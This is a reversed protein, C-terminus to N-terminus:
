RGGDYRRQSQLADKYLGVRYYIRRCTCWTAPARCKSRWCRAAPVGQRSPQSGGRPHPLAGRRSADSQTRVRELADVMDANRGKPTGGGAEWYDWPSLDMLSEAYLVQVHDNNPFAKAADRM